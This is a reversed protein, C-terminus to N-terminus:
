CDWTGGYTGPMKARIAKPGFLYEKVLRNTLNITKWSNVVSLQTKGRVLYGVLWTMELATLM